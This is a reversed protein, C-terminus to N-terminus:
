SATSHRKAVTKLDRYRRLHTHSKIGLVDVIQGYRKDIVIEAFFCETQYLSFCLEEGATSAVFKGLGAYELKSDIDLASFEHLQM